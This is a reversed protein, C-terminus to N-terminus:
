NKFNIFNLQLIKNYNNSKLIIIEFQFIGVELCFLLIKLNVYGNQGSNYGYFDTM